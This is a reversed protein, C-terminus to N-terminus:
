GDTDIDWLRGETRATDMLEPDRTALTSSCVIHLQPVAWLAAGNTLM